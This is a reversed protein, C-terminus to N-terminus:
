VKIILGCFIYPVCNDELIKQETTNFKKAISFLTDCPQVKYLTCDECEFYLMDGAEVERALNNQKIIVTPPINFALAIDFISDGESVRYFIKKM